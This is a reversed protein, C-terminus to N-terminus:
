RACPTTCSDSEQKNRSRLWKVGDRRFYHTGQRSQVNDTRWLLPFPIYQRRIFLIIACLKNSYIMVTKDREWLHVSNCHVNPCFNGPWPSSTQSEIRCYFIIEIVNKHDTKNKRIDNPAVLNFHYRTRGAKCERLTGMCWHSKRGVPHIPRQERICRSSINSDSAM